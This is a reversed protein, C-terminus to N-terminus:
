RSGAPPGDDATSARGLVAGRLEVPSETPLLHGVGPLIRLTANPFMAQARVAVEVPVETDREGWLLEVPCGIEPMADDYREALLTVLVDRIVGSAARYDASGYRNRMEEM